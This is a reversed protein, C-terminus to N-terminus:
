RMECSVTAEINFVFGLTISACTESAIQGIRGISLRLYSIGDGEREEQEEDDDDDNEDDLQVLEVAQRIGFKLDVLDQCLRCHSTTTTTMKCVVSLLISVVRM